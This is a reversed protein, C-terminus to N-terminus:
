TRRWSRFRRKERWNRGIFIRVGVAGSKAIVATLRLPLESVATRRALQRKAFEWSRLRRKGRWNSEILTRSFLAAESKADGDVALSAPFPAKPTPTTILLLNSPSSLACVSLCGARAVLGVGAARINKREYGALPM